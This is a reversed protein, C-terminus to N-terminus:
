MEGREGIDPGSACELMRVARLAAAHRDFPGGPLFPDPAGQEGHDDIFRDTPFRLTEEGAGTLRVGVRQHPRRLATEALDPPADLRVELEGREIGCPEARAGIVHASGADRELRDILDEVAAVPLAALAEDSRQVVGLRRHPVVNRPRCWRRVPGVVAEPLHSELAALHERVHRDDCVVAVRDGSERHGAFTLRLIAIRPHRAYPPVIPAAAERGGYLDLREGTRF